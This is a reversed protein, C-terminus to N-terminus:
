QEFLGRLPDEERLSAAIFDYIKIKLEVIEKETRVDFAYPDNNADKDFYQSGTEANLKISELYGLRRMFDHNKLIKEFVHAHVDKELYKAYTFAYGVAAAIREEQLCKLILRLLFEPSTQGGELGSDTPM